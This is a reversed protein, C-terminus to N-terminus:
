LRRLKIEPHFYLSLLENSWALAVHVGFAIWITGTYFTLWSLIIGLPVAGITEKIGKPIHAIAYICANLAIAPVAGLLSVTGFLLFGRFLLEYAFLYAAWSLLSSVLLGASWNPERIQPYMALNDPKRANGLNILLVVASLGVTWYLSVDLNIFSLGYDAATKPILLFNVTIPVIGMWFVGLYRQVLVQYVQARAGFRGELYRRLATSEAMFFYAVYGLTVHIMMLVFETDQTQWIVPTHPTPM